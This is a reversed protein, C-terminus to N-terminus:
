QLPNVLDDDTGTKGDPGDAGYKQFLLYENARKLDGDQAKIATAVDYIAQVLGSETMPCLAYAKKMWKLGEDYKGWALYLYARRRVGAYDNGTEALAAEFKKDLWEPCPPVDSPALPNSEPVAIPNSAQPKSKENARPQPGGAIGKADQYVLFANARHVHGDIAKIVAALNRCATVFSPGKVWRRGKTKLRQLPASAYMNRYERLAQAYDGMQLYLYGRQECDEAACARIRERFAAAEDAGIRTMLPQMNKLPDELDDATGADGDPGNPGYTQYRLYERVRDSIGQDVFKLCQAVSAIAANTRYVDCTRYYLIAEALAAEGNGAELYLDVLEKRADSASYLRGRGKLIADRFYAEARDQDGEQAYTKGLGVLANSPDQKPFEKLVKEFTQRAKESKGMDLYCRGIGVWADAVDRQNKPFRKIIQRYTAIAQDYRKGARHKAAISKLSQPTETHHRAVTAMGPNEAKSLIACATSLTAALLMRPGLTHLATSHKM